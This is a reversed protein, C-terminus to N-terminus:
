PFRAAIWEFFDAHWLAQAGMQCHEAAGSARDYRITTVSKANTLSSHFEEAQNLPIFHDEEGALILVDQRIRSAVDQLSFLRFADMSERPNKTKMTWKANSVAWSFSASFKSKLFVLADIWGDLKKERLWDVFGPVTRRSIEGGDFFVDYAVVGDIREEFAAARPAFYGGLSMGVLIMKSPRKHKSLFTDLVAKTPKEWEHTFGLNQNRIVSGQGPGEYTLVNYGREFGERGLTFYLEELTSDFGGVLILLPKRDAGAPGPYYVANLYMEQEYPISIKEYSIELLDLGAYFLQVGKQFSPIRKSDDPPLFFEATRVYNHARLYARGKSKRDSYKEARVLAREAANEWGEFWSQADGERITRIAEMVEGVEAGDSKVDNLARLTQFHYAQDKFFRTNGKSGCDTSLIVIGVFVLSTKIKQNIKMRNERAASPYLSRVGNRKFAREGFVQFKAKPLITEIADFYSCQEYEYNEFEFDFWFIHVKNM